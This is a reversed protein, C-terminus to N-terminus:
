TKRVHVTFNASTQFDTVQFQPLRPFNTLPYQEARIWQEELDRKFTQTTSTLFYM